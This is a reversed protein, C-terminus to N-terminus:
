KSPHNVQRQKWILSVGIGNLVLWWALAFILYAHLLNAAMLLGSAFMVVVAAFFRWSLVLSMMIFAFSAFSATAPFFEFLAHGRLTNMSGLNFALLFYAIWVRRIFLELPLAPQAIRPGGCLRFILRMAMLEGVWIALYGPSAHYGIITLYYCLCFAALHLWGVLLLSWGWNRRAALLGLQRRQDVSPLELPLSDSLTKSM